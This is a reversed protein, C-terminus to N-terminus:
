KAILYAVIGALVILLIFTATLVDAVHCNNEQSMQVGEVLADFEENRSVLPRDFQQCAPNDCSWVRYRPCQGILDLASGCSDCKM